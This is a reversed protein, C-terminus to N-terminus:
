CSALGTRLYVENRLEEIERELITRVGFTNIGFVLEVGHQGEDVDCDKQVDVWDLRERESLRRLCHRFLEAFEDFFADAWGSPEETSTKTAITALLIVGQSGM